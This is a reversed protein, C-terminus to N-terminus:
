SPKRRDKGGLVSVLAEIVRMSVEQISHFLHPACNLGLCYWDATVSKVLEFECFALGVPAAAELCAQAVLDPATGDFVVNNGAVFARVPEGDIIESLFLPMVRSLRELKEMEEQSAITYASPLSIPSYNIRRGCQEFFDWADNYSTTAIAKPLRFRLAPLMSLMDLSNLRTKYWLEPRLRNVVPCPLSHVYGRALAHWESNLYQGDKTQHEEVTTTIGSFRALVADIQRFDVRRGGMGAAGRIKGDHLEWIFELGPFLRDEPMFIAERGLEALRREVLKCCLDEDRGIILTFSM